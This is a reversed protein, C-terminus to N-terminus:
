HQYECAATPEGNDGRRPARQMREDIFHSYSLQAMAQVTARSQRITNTLNHLLTTM